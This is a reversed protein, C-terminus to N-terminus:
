IFFFILLMVQFNTSPHIMLFFFDLIVSLMMFLLWVPVLYSTQVSFIPSTLWCFVNHHHCNKVQKNTWQILYCYNNTDICFTLMLFDYYGIEFWLFKMCDDFWLFRQQLYSPKQSWQFQKIKVKRQARVWKSKTTYNHLTFGTSVFCIIQFSFKLFIYVQSPLFHM